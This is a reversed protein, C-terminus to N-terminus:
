LVRCFERQRFGVVVFGGEVFVGMRCSGWSVVGFVGQPTTATPKTPLPKTTSTKDRSNQRSGSSGFERGLQWQKGSILVAYISQLKRQILVTAAAPEWMFIFSGAVMIPKVLECFTDVVVVNDM